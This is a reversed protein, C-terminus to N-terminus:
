TEEGGFGRLGAEYLRGCSEFMSLGTVLVPIAREGAMELLELTPRKGRVFVIAAMDSIEATKVVQVNTLGTLLLTRDKTFALVDSLLDAGCATRLESDLMEEGWLVEAQLIERAECLKM